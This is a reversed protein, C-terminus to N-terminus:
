AHRVVLASDRVKDEDAAVEAVATCESQLAACVRDAFGALDSPREVVQRAIAQRLSARAETMVDPSGMPRAVVAAVLLQLRADLSHALGTIRTQINTALSLEEAPEMPRAPPFQYQQPAKQKEASGM